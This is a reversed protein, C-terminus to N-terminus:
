KLPQHRESHTRKESVRRVRHLKIDTVIMTNMSKSKGTSQEIALEDFLNQSVAPVDPWILVSSFGAATVRTAAPRHRLPSPLGDTENGYGARLSALTTIASSRLAAAVWSFLSGISATRGDDYM